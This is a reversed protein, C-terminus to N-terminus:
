CIGHDGQYREEFSLNRNDYDDGLFISTKYGDHDPHIVDVGTGPNLYLPYSNYNQKLYKIMRETYFEATARYRSSIDILDQMSPTDTNESSKRILGKNYFQYSLEFPLESLVFYTLCDTIFDNLLTLELASLDNNTIGTQLREYLGTGLAPLIMMDQTTKIISLINKDDVNSHVTTREKITNAGIFLVNRM